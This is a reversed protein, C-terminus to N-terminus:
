TILTLYFKQCSLINIFPFLITNPPSFISYFGSVNQHRKGIDATKQVQYLFCMNLVFSVNKRIQMIDSNSSTINKFM